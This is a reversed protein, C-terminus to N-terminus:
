KVWFTHARSSGNGSRDRVSCEVTHRGLALPKKIQFLLANDEPDYEAILKRGDLLLRLQEEQGMGSLEDKFTAKLLPTRDSLHANDQPQLALILPAKKDQLITFSGLTGTRATIFGPRSERDLDLFQWTGSKSSERYLGLGKTSDGHTCRLSIQVPEALPVDAPEVTFRDGAVPLGNQNSWGSRSWRVFMTKYCSGSDFQLLADGNALELSKESGVPVTTFQLDLPALPQREDEKVQFLQLSMPGNLGSNLPWGAIFRKSGIRELRVRETALLSTRGELELIGVPESSFQFDLRVFDDYYQARARYTLSDAGTMTAGNGTRATTSGTTLDGSVRSVNGWYDALEIRFEHKGAPVTLVGAPRQWALGLARSVTGWWGTQPVPADFEIVGAFPDESNYFNLTNGTDRFLKYFLGKDRTLLRYDRDLDAQGNVEYSFRDYCAAFVERGDIYLRNRFTGFENGSGEMQDFAEVGFGILGQVVVTEALRYTGASQRQPKLLLPQLDGAVRSHATLPTLSIQQVTPPMNDALAYGKSLPNIPRNAKDRMEFHLHPYGVGSEGTFGIVEGKQVPFLSKDPYLVISYRGRKEQEREVYDALRGNFKLLHAYVVTEGTDLTEYLVRGYGFPSIQVRSIYGSRVAFVKFGVQGFTKVDIGAHFRSARSEAFTSTLLRGADTPWLYEQAM